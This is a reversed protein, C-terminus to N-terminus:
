GDEGRTFDDISPLPVLEIQEEQAFVAPIALGNLALALLLGTSKKM